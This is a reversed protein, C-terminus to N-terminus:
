RIGEPHAAIPLRLSKLRVTKAAAAVTDIPTAFCRDHQVIHRHLRAITRTVSFRDAGIRLAREGIECIFKSTRNQM